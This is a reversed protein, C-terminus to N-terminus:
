PHLLRFFLNGPQSPILLSKNTSNDSITYGSYGSPGWHKTTLDPNQQLSWGASASPWSVLKGTSQVKVSASPTSTPLPFITANTLVSITSGNHYGCILDIKGNGNIDAAIVSAFNGADSRLFAPVFGGSGNNTLVELTNDFENLCVLDMKGDGNVDAIVVANPGEGVAVSSSLAFGGSGNNTLVELTNDQIACVLDV